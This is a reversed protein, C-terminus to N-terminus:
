SAFTLFIAPILHGTFFSLFVISMLKFTRLGGDFTSAYHRKVTDTASSPFYFLQKEEQTTPPWLSPPFNFMSKRVTLPSQNSKHTWRCVTVGRQPHWLFFLCAAEASIYVCPLLHRRRKGAAPRQISQLRALRGPFVHAQPGCPARLSYTCYTFDKKIKIKNDSRATTEYVSDGHSHLVCTDGDTQEGPRWCNYVITPSLGESTGGGSPTFIALAPAAAQKASRTVNGSSVALTLSWTYSKHLPFFFFADHVCQCAAVLFFRVFSRFFVLILGLTPKNGYCCRFVAFFFVIM